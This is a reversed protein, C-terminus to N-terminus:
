MIVNKETKMARLVIIDIKTYTNGRKNVPLNRYCWDTADQLIESRYEEPVYNVHGVLTSLYDSLQKKGFDIEDCPSHLEGEVKQFGVSKLLEMNEELTLQNYMKHDYGRLHQKWKNHNELYYPLDEKSLGLMQHLPGCFLLYCKGNENLCDFINQFAQKREKVWHLVHVSVVKSFAGKWNPCTQLCDVIDAIEYTLNLRQYKQKAVDVMERSIDHGTVSRATVAMENAIDGTGCGVDLIVDQPNISLYRRVYLDFSTHQLKRTKSYLIAEESNM